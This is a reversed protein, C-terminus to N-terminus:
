SLIEFYFWSDSRQIELQKPTECNGGPVKSTRLLSTFLKRQLFISGYRSYRVLKFMLHAKHLANLQFIGRVVSENLDGTFVLRIHLDTCKGKLYIKVLMGGPHLVLVLISGPQWLLSLPLLSASTPNSGRVKKLWRAGYLFNRSIHSLRNNHRQIIQCGQSVSIGVVIFSCFITLLFLLERELCKLNVVM